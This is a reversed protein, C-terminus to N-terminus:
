VISARRLPNSGRAEVDSAHREIRQALPAHLPHLSDFGRISNPFSASQWQAVGAHDPIGSEFQRGGPGLGPARGVSGIGSFM